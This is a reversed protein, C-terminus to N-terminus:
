QSRSQQPQKPPVAERKIREHAARRGDVIKQIADVSYNEEMLVALEADLHELGAAVAPPVIGLLAMRQHILRPTLNRLYLRRQMETDLVLVKTQADVLVDQRHGFEAMTQELKRLWLNLSFEIAVFEKGKPNPIGADLQQEYNALHAKEEGVHKHIEIAEDSLRHLALAASSYAALAADLERKKKDTSERQERGQRERRDQERRDNEATEKALREEREFRQRKTALLWLGLTTLFQAALIAWISKDMKEILEELSEPYPM